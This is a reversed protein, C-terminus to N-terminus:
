PKQIFEEAVVVGYQYYIVGIGVDTFDPYLINYRHWYSGMFMVNAREVNRAKALNEGLARFHIGMSRAMQEPTGYVPSTHAFYNNDLIDQAKLRAMRTLQENAVLPRLGAQQRAQNILNLLTQEDATLFTATGTQGPNGPAPQPQPQPQPAPQPAPQTQPAPQAATGGAARVVVPGNPSNIVQGPKLYWSAYAQPM